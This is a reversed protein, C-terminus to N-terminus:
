GRWQVSHWLAFQDPITQPKSTALMMSLAPYRELWTGIWASWRQQQNPKLQDWGEILLLWVGAALGRKVVLENIAFGLQEMQQHLLQLPQISHDATQQVRYFLPVYATPLQAGRAWQLCLQRMALSRSGPEILALRPTERLADRLPMAPGGEVQQFQLPLRQLHPLLPQSGVLAEGELLHHRYRRIQRGDRLRPLFNLRFTALAM